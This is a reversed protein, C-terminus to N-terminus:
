AIAMVAGLIVAGVTALLMIWVIIYTIKKFTSKKKM